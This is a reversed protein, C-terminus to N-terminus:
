HLSHRKTIWPCGVSFIIALGHGFIVVPVEVIPLHCWLLCQVSSSPPKAIPGIVVGHLCGVKHQADLEVLSVCVIIYCVLSLGNLCFRCM